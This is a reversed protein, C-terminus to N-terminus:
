VLTFATRMLARMLAQAVASPETYDMSLANLTAVPRAWLAGGIPRLNGVQCVINM